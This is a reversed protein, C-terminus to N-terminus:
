RKEEQDHRETRGFSKKQSGNDGGSKETEEMFLLYNINEISTENNMKLM